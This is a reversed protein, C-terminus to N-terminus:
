LELATDLCLLHHCLSVESPIWPQHSSCGWDKHASCRGTGLLVHPVIIGVSISLVLSSLASEMPFTATHAM